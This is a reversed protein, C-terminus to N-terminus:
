INIQFYLIRFSFGALCTRYWHDSLHSCRSVRTESPTRHHTHDPNTSSSLGPWPLLELERHATVPPLVPSARTLQSGKQLRLALFIDSFQDPDSYLSLLPVFITWTPSLLAKFSFEVRSCSVDKCQFTQLTNLQCSHVSSCFAPWDLPFLHLSAKNKLYVHLPPGMGVAGSDAPLLIANHTIHLFVM